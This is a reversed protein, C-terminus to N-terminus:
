FLVFNGTERSRNEAVQVAVVTFIYLGVIIGIGVYIFWIIDGFGAGALFVRRIADVAYTLPFIFSIVRAWTPFLYVPTRVGAFVEMPEELITFLIRTDRSFLFLANLFMGWAVAMIITIIMVVIAPLLLAQMTDGYYVLVLLGFLGLVVVSEFFSAIANGLLVAPRSAPSLYILELTGAKREFSFGWASQVLSRFFSMAIFGLMLFAVINEPNLYPVASMSLDFNQFGYYATIFSLLPWFALSVYITRSHFYNKHQKRMEAKVTKLFARM